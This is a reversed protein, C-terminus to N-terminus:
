VGSRTLCVDLVRQSDERTIFRFRDRNAGVACKQGDFPNSDILRRRVAVRLFQRARGCRRRVTNEKLPVNLMWKRFDDADGPTIDRLLKEPGFFALMSRQTQRYLDTTREKVDERSKIYADTFEKLTAAERKPILGVAALKDAMVADLRSLWRATEDDVPQKSIAAAALREVHTKVGKAVRNTVKGLRISRRKGDAAKFQITRHGNKRNVSISAM